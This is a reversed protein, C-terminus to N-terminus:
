VLDTTNSSITIQTSNTFIEPNTIYHFNPMRPIVDLKFTSDPAKANPLNDFFKDVQKECHSDKLDFHGYCGNEYISKVFILLEEKNIIKSDKNM